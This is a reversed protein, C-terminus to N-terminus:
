SLSLLVLAPCQPHECHSARSGVATCVACYMDRCIDMVFRTLMGVKILDRVIDVSEGYCVATLRRSWAVYLKDLDLATLQRLGAVTLQPSDSWTLEKLQTLQALTAAAADKFAAGSVSLATCSAPLQLLGSLDASPQVTGVVGLRRLAPCGRSILEPDASDICSPEAGPRSDDAMLQCVQLQPMQRGAAFMHQVAGKPLPVANLTQVVLRTLHSSATLASFRQLPISVTGVGLSRLQLDELCSLKPLAHLLAATGESETPLLSCSQLHLAQLQAVSGLLTPLFGCHQLQLRLLGTLQPLQSPLSPSGQYDSGQFQLQTVSSPLRQLDCTPMDQQCSLSVERLGQMATLQQVAAASLPMDPLELVSLRPLRNLMCSVTAAVQQVATPTNLDSRMWSGFQLQAVEISDLSLSTLQPAHTLQLLSSTSALQVGTLRFHQLSPLVAEAHSDSATLGLRRLQQGAGEEGEGPLKLEFRTLDLRQLQKFRNLPLQLSREPGPAFMDTSLQITLLQDAHQQLWAQLAPVADATLKFKEVHVTGLAAASAWARCVLACQTLRQQQPVHQLIQPILAAPLDSLNTSPPPAQLLM